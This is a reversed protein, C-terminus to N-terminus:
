KPIETACKKILASLPGLVKDRRGLKTKRCLGHACRPIRREETRTGRRSRARAGTPIGPKHTSV